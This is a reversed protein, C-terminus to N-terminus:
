GAIASLDAGGRTVSKFPKGDFGDYASQVWFEDIPDILYLVEVGKKIFGELQPSAKVTAENEGAIYFITTQGDKMLGIYDALSVLGDQTSSRFRALKLLTERHETEGGYLGEKLVAGFTGWFTEYGEKDKEAKKSLESLVRKTVAQSISGVLPNNQLMERSINLPLDECDIM